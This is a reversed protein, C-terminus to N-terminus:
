LSESDLFIQLRRLDEPVDVGISANLAEVCFISDGRELIRLQELQESQELSSHNWKQFNKLYDRQFLYVGLHQWAGEFPTRPFPIPSRSFYLADWNQDIVAKVVHPSQFLSEDNIRFILTALKVSNKHHLTKQLLNELDDINIFPEDGQVNLVWDSSFEQMAEVIRDTGTAHDSSTMVANGGFSQVCDFIHSDDTAVVAQTVSPVQTVQEYVRQIMSKGAIDVLPKGPFRTSAYRAPIVALVTEPVSESVVSM